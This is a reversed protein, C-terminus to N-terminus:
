PGDLAAGHAAQGCGHVHIRIAAAKQAQSFKPERGAYGASLNLKLLYANYWGKLSNETPDGLQRITPRVRKGLKIYLEVARIRDQYCYM